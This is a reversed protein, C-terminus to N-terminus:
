LYKGGGKELAPQEGKKKKFEEKSPRYQKQTEKTELLSDEYFFLRGGHAL